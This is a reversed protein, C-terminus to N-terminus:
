TRDVRCVPGNGGCITAERARKYRQADEQDKRIRGYTKCTRVPINSGIPRESACVLREADNRTLIGNIREQSNFLVLRDADSMQATSDRREFVSQMRALLEDVTSRDAGSVFRYRGGSGMGERVTQALSAFKDRTDAKGIGIAEGEGAHVGAAFLALGVCAIASRIGM